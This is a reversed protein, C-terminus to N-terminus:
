SVKLRPAARAAPMGTATLPPAFAIATASCAMMSMSAVMFRRM